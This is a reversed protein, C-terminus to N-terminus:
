STAQEIIKLLSFPIVIAHMIRCRDSPIDCDIPGCVLVFKDPVDPCLNHQRRVMDEYGARAFIAEPAIEVQKEQCSLLLIPGPMQEWIALRNVFALMLESQVEWREEDTMAAEWSEDETSLKDLGALEDELLCVADYIVEAGGLSVNLGNVFDERRDTERASPM